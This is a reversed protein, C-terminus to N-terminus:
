CLRSMLAETRTVDAWTRKASTNNPQPQHSNKGRGGNKTKPPKDGMEKVWKKGAEENKKKRQTAKGEVTKWGEMEVPATTAADPLPIDQTAPGDPPPMPKASTSAIALQRPPYKIILADLAEQAASTAHCSHM